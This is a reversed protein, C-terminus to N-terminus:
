KPFDDADPDDSDDAPNQGSLRRKPSMFLSLCVGAMLMIGGAAALPLGPDSKAKLISYPKVVTFVVASDEDIIVPEGLRATGIGLLKGKDYVSYVVRPNDPRLTRSEMGHDPDYDQIYKFM